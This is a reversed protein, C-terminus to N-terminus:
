GPHWGRRNLANMIIRLEDLSISTYYSLPVSGDADNELHGRIKYLVIVDTYRDM